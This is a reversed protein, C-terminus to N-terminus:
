PLGAPEGRGKADLRLVSGLQRALVAPDGTPLECVSNECVYATAAGDRAVKRRVGPVLAAHAALDDGEAVRAVVRNPVYLRRLPVLLADPEAGGRPRVLIVEKATDLQFDLAVLMEALEEWSGTTEYIETLAAKAEEDGPVAALAARYHVGALEPESLRRALDGALIQLAAPGPDSELVPLLAAYAARPLGARALAVAEAVRPRALDELPM